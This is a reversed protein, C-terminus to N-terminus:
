VGAAARRERIGWAYGGDPLVGFTRTVFSGAHSLRNQLRVSAVGFWERQEEPLQERFFEFVARQRPSACLAAVILHNLPYMWLKTRGSNMVDDLGRPTRCEDVMPLMRREIIPRLRSVMGPFRRPDDPSLHEDPDDFFEYISLTFARGRPDDSCGDPDLERFLRAVDEVYTDVVVNMFLAGDPEGVLVRFVQVGGEFRRVMRQGSRQFGKAQALDALKGLFLAGLQDMDVGASSLRPETRERELALGDSRHVVGSDENFMQLRLENAYQELIAVSDRPPEAAIGVSLVPSEIRDDFPGERWGGGRWVRYFRDFQNLRSAM